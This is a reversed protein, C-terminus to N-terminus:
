DFISCIMWKLWMNQTCVCGFDVFHNARPCLSRPWLRGRQNSSPEKQSYFAVKTNEWATHQEWPASSTLEPFGLACAPGSSWFRSTFISTSFYSPSPPTHGLVYLPPQGASVVSCLLLEQVLPTNRVKSPVGLGGLSWHPHYCAQEMCGQGLYPHATLIWQLFFPTIFSHVMRHKHPYKEIWGPWIIEMAWHRHVISPVSLSNWSLSIYPFCM